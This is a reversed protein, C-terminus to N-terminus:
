IDSDSLESGEVLSMKLLIEEPVSFDIGLSTTIKYTNKRHPTISLIKSKEPLM